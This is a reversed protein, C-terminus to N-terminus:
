GRLTIMKKITERLEKLHPDKKKEKLDCLSRFATKVGLKTIL